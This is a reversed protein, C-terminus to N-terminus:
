KEGRRKKLMDIVDQIKTDKLGPCVKRAEQLHKKIAEKNWLPINNFIHDPYTCCFYPREKDWVKCSFKGDVEILQECPYEFTITKMADGNEFMFPSEEVKIKPNKMWMYRVAFDLNDNTEFVKCCAGCRQCAESTVLTSENGTRM